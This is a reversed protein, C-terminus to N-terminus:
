KSKNAAYILTALAAGGLLLLGANKATDNKRQPKEYSVKLDQEEMETVTRDAMEILESPSSNLRNAARALQDITLVSEGKEIRSWAPQGIGVEAALEAQSINNTERIKTIVAGIVASYTSGPQMM